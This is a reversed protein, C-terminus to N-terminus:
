AEPDFTVDFYLESLPLDAEIEPLEIVAELGEIETSTWLEDRRRWVIVRPLSTDVTLIVRISPHQQSEALKQFRDYRTTSPSLVEIVLRPDDAAM